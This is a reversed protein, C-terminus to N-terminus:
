APTFRKPAGLASGGARTSIRTPGQTEYLRPATSCYTRSMSRWPPHGRLRPSRFDLSRRGEAPGNAVLIVEGGEMGAVSAVAAEVVPRVTDRRMTSPIVITASM